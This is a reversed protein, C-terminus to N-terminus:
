GAVISAGSAVDHANGGFGAPQAAALNVWSLAIPASYAGLTENWARATTEGDLLIDGGSGTITTASAVTADFIGGPGVSVGATNGAGWVRNGGSYISPFTQASSNSTMLQIGPAAANFVALQAIMQFGGQLSLNGGYLVVDADLIISGAFCVLGQLVSGANMTIISSAGLILDDTFCCGYLFVTVSQLIQFSSDMRCGLFMGQPFNPESLEGVIQLNSFTCQPFSTESQYPITIQDLAVRVQQIINFTDGTSIASIGVQFTLPSAPPLTIPKDVIATLGGDTAALISCTAGNNPGGVIRIRNGVYPTFNFTGGNGQIQWPTNTAPNQAIVNFATGTALVSADTAQIVVLQGDGFRFGAGSIPDTSPLDSLINVFITAAGPAAVTGTTGWRRFLEAATKIATPVTLGTNEDNGNIPDIFWNVQSQADPSGSALAREWNGGGIAAIVTIGDPTLTSNPNLFFPQTSPLTLVIVGRTGDAPDIAALATLNAVSILGGGGSGGPGTSGTPGTSGSGAPGTPGIPGRHGRPGRLEEVRNKRIDTM